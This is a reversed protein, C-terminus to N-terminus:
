LVRDQKIATFTSEYTGRSLRNTHKHIHRIPLNLIFGMPELLCHGANVEDLSNQILVKADGAGCDM